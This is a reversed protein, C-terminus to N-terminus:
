LMGMPGWMLEDASKKQSESLAAYLPKLAKTMARLADLHAAMFTEHRDLREPLSLKEQGGQGWMATCNSAMTQANARAASAYADWLQEQSATIKIETKLYALRGEIHSTMAACPSGGQGWGGMMWPGGYGAGGQGMMGPGMRGYGPGYPSMMGPGGWGGAGDQPPGANQASAAHALLVVAAIAIAPLTGILRLNRM